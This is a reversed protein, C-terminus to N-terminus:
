SLLEQGGQELWELFEDRPVVYITGTDLLGTQVVVDDPLGLEKATEPNCFAVCIEDGYEKM